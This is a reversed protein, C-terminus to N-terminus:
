VPNKHSIPGYISVPTMIEALAGADPNEIPNCTATNGQAYCRYEKTWGPKPIGDGHELAPCVLGKTSNSAIASGAPYSYCSFSVPSEAQALLNSGANPLGEQSMPPLNQQTRATNATQHDSKSPNDQAAAQMSFAATSLLVNICVKSFSMYWNSLLDGSIFSKLLLV